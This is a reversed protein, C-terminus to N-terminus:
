VCPVNVCAYILMAVEVVVDVNGLLLWLLLMSLFFSVILLM